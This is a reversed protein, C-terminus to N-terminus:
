KLNHSSMFFLSLCKLLLLCLLMEIFICCLSPIQFSHTFGKPFLSIVSIIFSPFKPAFHFFFLLLSTFPIIVQIGKQSFVKWTVWEFKSFLLVNIGKSHLYSQIQGVGSLDTFTHQPYVSVSISLYLCRNRCRYRHKYWYKFIHIHKRWSIGM